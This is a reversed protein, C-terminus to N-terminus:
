QPKAWDSIESDGGFMLSKVSMEYNEIVYLRSYEDYIQFLTYDLITLKNTSPSKVTVASIIDHLGMPKENAELAKIRAIKERNKKMKEYIERARDDHPNVESDEVVSMIGNSLKILTVIEDFLESDIPKVDDDSLNKKFLINGSFTELTIQGRELGLAFELSEEFSKRYEDEEGFMMFFDLSKLKHKELYLDMYIPTDVLIKLFDEVSTMILGVRNLYNEYGITAIERLTYQRVSLDEDSTPLELGLILNIRQSDNVKM